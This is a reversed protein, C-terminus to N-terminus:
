WRPSSGARSVPEGTVFRTPNIEDFASFFCDFVTVAIDRVVDVRSAANHLTAGYVV